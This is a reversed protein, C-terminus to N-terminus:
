DDWKPVETCKIDGVMMVSFANESKFICNEYKCVLIKRISWIFKGLRIKKQPRDGGLCGLHFRLINPHKFHLYSFQMKIRSRRLPCKCTIKGMHSAHWGLNSCVRLKHVEMVRVQTLVLPLFTRGLNNRSSWSEGTSKWVYYGGEPNIYYWM